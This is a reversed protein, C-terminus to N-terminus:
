ALWVTPTGSKRRRAKLDDEYRFTLEDWAKEYAQGYAAAKESWESNLRTSFDEFIMSLALLIHVERLTTNSLILHPRNGKSILKNMIRIWAEDLFNNYDAYSSHPSASDPDLGPVRAYLDSGSVVPYLAQRVVYLENEPKVIRGDTLVINFLIRYRDGYALTTTLDLTAIDSVISMAGSLVVNFSADVIQYTASAADRLISHEYIPCDITTSVGKVLVHPMKLNASIM